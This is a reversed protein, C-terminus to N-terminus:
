RPNTVRAALDPNLGARVIDIPVAVAVPGAAAPAVVGPAFHFTFASILGPDAATATLTFNQLVAL